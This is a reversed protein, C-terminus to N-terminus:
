RKRRIKNFDVYEYKFFDGPQSDEMYAECSIETGDARHFSLIQKIQGSEERLVTERPIGHSLIFIAEAREVAEAESSAQVEIEDLDLGGNVGHVSDCDIGHYPTIIYTNM